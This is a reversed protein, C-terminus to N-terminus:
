ERMLANVVVIIKLKNKHKINSERALEAKSM